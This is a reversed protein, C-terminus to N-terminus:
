GDVHDVLLETVAARREHNVWHSADPFRELQGDDCYELSAPAM